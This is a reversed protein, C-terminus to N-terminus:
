IGLAKGWVKEGRYAQWVIEMVQFAKRPHRRRCLYKKDKLPWIFYFKM